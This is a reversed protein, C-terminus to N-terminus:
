YELANRNVACIFISIVTGSAPLTLGSFTITAGSSTTPTNLTFIGSYTVGATTSGTAPTFNTNSFFYPSAYDTSFSIGSSLTPNTLSVVTSVGGWNVFVFYDGTGTASYFCIASQTFYCEVNLPGVGVLGNTTGGIPSGNTYSTQNYFCYLGSFPNSTVKPLLLEVDYIIHLEGINAAAQMGVTALQLIGKNYFKADSGTPVSGGSSILLTETINEKKACEIGHILNHCPAGDTTFEYELMEYKSTFNAHSVNYQTSLIVTGLATNTSNLASASTTKYYAVCGHLKYETYRNAIQSLFPFLDSNGPNILWYSLTFATTGFIDGLYEHHKIRVGHQSNKFSPVGGTPISNKAIHYDGVGWIDMAGDMIASGMSPM